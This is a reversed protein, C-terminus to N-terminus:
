WFELLKISSSVQGEQGHQVKAEEREREKEIREKEKNMRKERQEKTEKRKKGGGKNKKGKNKKKKDKKKDQRSAHTDRPRFESHTKVACHKQSLEMLAVHKNGSLKEVLKVWWRLFVCLM